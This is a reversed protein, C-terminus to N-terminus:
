YIGGTFQGKQHNLTPLMNLIYKLFSVVKAQQWLAHLCIGSASKMQVVKQHLVIQYRVCGPVQFFRRTAELSASRARDQELTRVMQVDYSEQAARLRYELSETQFALNSQRKQPQRHEQLRLRRERAAIEPANGASSSGAGSTSSRPLLAAITNASNNM